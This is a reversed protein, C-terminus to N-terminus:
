LDEFVTEDIDRMCRFHGKPCKDFGIKSCPRCNLEVELITSQFDRVKNAADSNGKYPYMGFEPITNGWLSIINKRFAAAVHMLGTDHTIILKARKVIAASENLSFNGCSNHIKASSHKLLGEGDAYDAANGLIVIPSKIKEAISIMKEPPLRKTRHRAGIVWAIYDQQHSRPLRHVAGEDAQSIFYDLGLGDNIIGLSEVAKMYRDVIHIDPLLNIRFNVLLYKRVNLKNFTHSRAGLAMRIRLSRINKQLDIILDYKEKKLAPIVEELNNDFLFIKDIYPNHELVEHYSKRVLFHIEVDKLQNKVCRIVPTTLVIDGISSFRIFLIKM